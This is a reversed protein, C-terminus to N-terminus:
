EKKAMQPNKNTYTIMQAQFPKEPSSADDWDTERLLVELKGILCM